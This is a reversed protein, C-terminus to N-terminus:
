ETTSNYYHRHHVLGIRLIHSLDTEWDAAAQRAEAKRAVMSEVALFEVLVVMAVVERGVRVTAVGERHKALVKAEVGQRAAGRWCDVLRVKEELDEVEYDEVAMLVVTAATAATAAVTAEAATAELAMLGVKGATAVAYVGMVAVVVMGMVAVVLCDEEWAVSLVM